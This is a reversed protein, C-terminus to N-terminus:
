RERRLGLRSLRCAARQQRRRRPCHAHVPQGRRGLRRLALINAVFPAAAQRDGGLYVVNQNGPDALISFHTEGQGGPHITPAPTDLATWNGGQNTSRFVGTLQDLATTSPPVPPNSNVVGVFVANNGGAAHVSVKINTTSATIAGGPTGAGVGSVNTWTQGTDNSRFVGATTSAYLWANNSPDGALHFARGAPLGSTGNGSLQTFTAGTDISRWIGGPNTAVVITSGRPAVGIVSRGALAAAGLNTWNNGGDTTRLIGRLAGGIRNLSSVAGFGAVLTQNTAVTPDLELAGISLGAQQDTLPTWTPTAATANTTRWVGGNVAGIWLTNPDTPHAVVQNVAGTVPNNPLGETQGGETPAPGQAVWTVPIVPQASVSAPGLVSLTALVIIPLLVVGAMRRGQRTWM